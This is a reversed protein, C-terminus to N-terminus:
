EGQAIPRPDEPDLDGINPMTDPPQVTARPARRRPRPLSGLMPEGLVTLVGFMALLAGGGGVVLIVLAGTPGPMTLWTRTGALWAMGPVLAIALRGVRGGQRKLTLTGLRLRLHHGLAVLNFATVMVTAAALGELGWPLFLSNFGVNAVVSMLTITATVRSEQRAYFFRAYLDRLAYMPMSIALIALATATRLTDASAFAGREFALQVAPVGLWALLMAIPVMTVLLLGTGRELWAALGQRDDRTAAESLHPFMPVLLATLLIGMPLQLLLNAYNFTSITGPALRSAFATGIAVNLTGISSTLAAPGLVRLMGIFDPDRFRVRGRGGVILTSWDRRVAWGQLILQGLAGALTGWAIAVPNRTIAVWAIVTLSSVLPSLSASAYKGGINQIGCLVGILGGIPILPAMIMLQEVALKRAEPSLKPGLLTIVSPAGLAIALGLAGMLLLTGVLITIVLDGVRPTEERTRLRTLAGMTALHFPGNLGGLLILFLAPIIYAVTQSDKVIGAGFASAVVSERLFGAGKSVLLLIAM